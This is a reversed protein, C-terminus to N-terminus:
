QFIQTAYYEYYGPRREVMYVGIGTKTHGGIM